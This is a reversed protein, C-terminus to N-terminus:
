SSEQKWLSWSMTEGDVPWRRYIVRM